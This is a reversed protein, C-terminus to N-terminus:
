YRAILGLNQALTVAQTRNKVGLKGYINTTHGKVTSLSIHLQRGIEQNTLGEAILGLVERERESLPEVLDQVTDAKKIPVAPQLEQKTLATLLSGAYAYSHNSAMAKYLLQAVPQGEDLFTRMYGEPEALTLAESFAKMALEDAGQQQYAIAQLLLVEIVRRMQARKENHSRVVELINLAHTFQNQALFLRVLTLYEGQVLEFATANHDALAVLDGLPRDLLGSRRAWQEARDLEGSAIWLRAQMLETLNDDIVTTKSASSHQRADELIVQVEDWKGQSLYVRALSLYAMTLGIDVFQKFIEAAESLFKCAGELDNWERALEGMGLLVRGMPQSRGGLQEKSVDLVKQYEDWAQHLRGQQYHLGALNSLGMLMMIVNGAKQSTEVVKEFAQTASILDGRLAHGMALSDAALIRLFGREAPLHELASESLRIAELAKGKMVAYIAQLTDTEGRFREASATIEQLLSLANEPIKGMLMMAVGQYVVLAPQAYLQNIPFAELWRLFTATEGHMLIREANEGILSAAADYDKGALLHEVAQEFMKNQAYWQGAKTHLNSLIQKNTQQLRKQLLDAFLAHYRYWEGQYDLPILFINADVLQELIQAAQSQGTVAECLPASLQKLISTQLLFDKTVESQQELVEGTLYDAIYEYGGSFTQIFEPINETQRMSLMALHLGAVWGETRSVLIHLQESSLHLGMHQVLFNSTEEGTMALDVQRIETLQGRARLRALPLPPDSRSIIVLHIEQPQHDILYGMFDQISQVNITHYDDLILVSPNTLISLDNILITALVNPSTSHVNQLAALTGQGLGAQIHQLAAVLYRIFRALDNDEPDLTLWIFKEHPAEEWSKGEKHQHVWESVLTTKGYGTPACILTLLHGGQLGEDLLNLLRERRVLKPSAPPLSFKTTLLPIAM